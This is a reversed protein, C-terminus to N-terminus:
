DRVMALDFAFVRDCHEPGNPCLDRYRVRHTQYGAKAVFIDCGVPWQGGISGVRAEGAVDSHHVWGTPWVGGNEPCAVALTAGEVPGQPSRLRVSAGWYPECGAALAIVLLALARM